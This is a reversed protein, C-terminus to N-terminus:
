GGGSTAAGTGVRQLKDTEHRANEATMKDFAEWAALSKCTRETFRSGIVDVKRCKVPTGDPAIDGERLTASAATGAEPTACAALFLAGCLASMSLKPM